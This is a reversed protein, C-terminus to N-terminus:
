RAASEHKSIPLSAAYLLCDVLERPKVLFPSHSSDLTFVRDCGMAQHMSRQAPLTIARDYACEIYVRAIHGFNADSLQLPTMFPATAQPVLLSCARQYDQESCDAYFVERLIEPRLIATAHDDSFVLNPMVLAATDKSAEAILNEGNPLLFACVYVLSKVREPRHEAAQSIVLGGMSHGALVVPEPCRDIVDLVRQVYAPLTVQQVATRDQGHGPLDPAHVTHGHARLQQAVRDWVWGGHWAGHILVFTSM